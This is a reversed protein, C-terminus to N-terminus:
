KEGSAVVRSSEVEIVQWDWKDVLVIKWCDPGYVEGYGKSRAYAKKAAELYETPIRDRHALLDCQRQTISETYTFPHDRHERSRISLELRLEAASSSVPLLLLAILAVLLAGLSFPACSVPPCSFRDTRQKAFREITGSM